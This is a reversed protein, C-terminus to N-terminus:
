HLSNEKDILHKALDYDQQKVYVYYTKMYTTKEAFSGRARRSSSFLMSFLSSSANSSDVCKTKYLIGNDSLVQIYRSFDHIDFTTILLKKM